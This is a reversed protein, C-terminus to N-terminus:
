RPGVALTLRSEEIWGTKADGNHFWSVEATPSRTTRFCFGTITGVISDDGDITVRDDFKFRSEFQM